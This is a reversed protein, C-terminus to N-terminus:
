RKVRGPSLAFMKKFARSFAAESCYGVEVAVNAVTGGQELLEWALQMRWWTLYYGVTWGSVAKFKESFVTRSMAARAALQALNWSRAPDAHIAAVAAALRPHGYLALLTVRHPNDQLYQKLAYTFLLESLRDITARSAPGPARNEAVILQLLPQLWARAQGYRIILLPPLAGLLYRSGRHRFGVDGCLLGTGELHAGEQFSLHQQDGTLAQGPGLTHALAVPFIVLDGEELRGQWHGPVDLLCSGLTVIHFCPGRTEGEGMRWNGCVKANHYIEVELKLLQLVQSFPDVGSSQAHNYSNEDNM